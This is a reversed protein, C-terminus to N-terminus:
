AALAPSGSNGKIIDCETLLAVPAFPHNFSENVSSNYIAKCTARSQHGLMKGKKNVPNIKYTFYNEKDKFGDRSIRLSPRPVKQALKLFAYDPSQISSTSKSNHVVTECALTIEEAGDAKPLHL